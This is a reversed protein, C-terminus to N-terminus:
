SNAHLTVEGSSLTKERGDSTRVVLQADDTIGTVVAEYQRERSDIVPSVTVTKGILTSRAKYEEMASFFEEERGDLIEVLNEIIRCLLRDKMEANKGGDANEDGAGSLSSGCIGGARLSLEEPMKSSFYINIGIGIVAAEVAGSLPNVIGETLIGCVKKGSVFIDNVWKIGADVNFVSKIARCVAVAAVATIKGPDSVSGAAYVLSFYLGTGGPSYFKRGLRGRGATQEGAVLVTKHFLRYEEPPVAGLRRKAESNTSDIIDFYELRVGPICLNKM